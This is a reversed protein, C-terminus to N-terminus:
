LKGLANVSVKEMHFEDFLAGISKRIIEHKNKENASTHLRLTLRNGDKELKQIRYFKVEGNQNIRVMDNKHLATVFERGSGHEVNIMPQKAGGIGKARKHAEMTTVFHGVHKGNPEKIIEVHHFNGYTLWKFVKGNRDKVGFKNQKLENLTAQSQVVRVRKIPTQGDKHRVVVGEAFALKPNNGYKELHNTIIERVKDDVIKKAKKADFAENLLVRQVTGVGEVYGAGTDEHLAGTLKRQPTHAVIIRELQEKVDNRLPEWPPDIHIDDMSISAKSKELEKAIKVVTQYMGLDISAIVVADIAHHRHDSREKKDSEGILNNLGWQHRLWATTQGKCVNTDAGLQKLYDNAVRSIYRTDTLQNGIFDRQQVEKATKYFRERKSKLERPWHAIAQTIQEWKDTNGGFADVPTRQGKYRNESTYCVVKNMYSDDLSESLPLIHDVDVEATFLTTIPIAKNSYICRQEQDKWLRYRLKDARSPYKGLGLHPYKKSLSRYEETAEDNAKTNQKQQKEHAKYRKTNMELDRAMEIRIIDPKGYEAIIANVVRRLEHLSKNVIPNSTEPPPGLRDTAAIAQREYGYGASVRADSYIQGQELYPLLKKTAKSSLNSHGPEFELMCLNVATRKDIDWHTVLRKKLVSKKQITLLDEVLAQQSADDLTDWDPYVTRIECATINGKLKKNGQELNFLYGKDFGLTKRIKGFTIAPESEFLEVLKQRQEVNLPQDAKETYPDFYRLNNIDQLYRSRQCELRATRARNCQPELSCKGVRDARMKLPRQHFTIHEIQTKVADTLVSHHKQQEAWIRDLEDRYMQRDTRLHASERLRNRKCEHRDLGALYEGLTRCGKEHIKQRLQSIDAKFASEEKARETSTDEAAEAEELVALVDPDDLMDRGLLTKRTSLFGRRQVLHLLVRGLQHSDLPHDLARARLQYPDGLDNLIVEPQTHGRLAEPLLGLKILYNLMRQKRRARRELVRRALRKNRREVNKPTPTKDEVAKIFIRSGMDIIGDPKKNQASLLAWGISNTGLDLGLIKQKSM